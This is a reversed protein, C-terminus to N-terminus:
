EGRKHAGASGEPAVAHWVSALCCAQAGHGAQLKSMEHLMQPAAQLRRLARRSRQSAAAPGRGREQLGQRLAPSRMASQQTLRALRPRIYRRWLSGSSPSRRRRCPCRRGKRGGGLLVSLRRAVGRLQILRQLM